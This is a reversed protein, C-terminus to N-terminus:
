PVFVGQRALPANPGTAALGDAGGDDIQVSGIEWIARTRETTAGPAVADFTTSV